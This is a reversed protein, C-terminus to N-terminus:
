YGALAAARGSIEAQASALSARLESLLATSNPSGVACTAQLMRIATDGACVASQLRELVVRAPPASSRSSRVSPVSLSAASPTGSHGKILRYRYGFCVPSPASCEKRGDDGGEAAGKAREEEQRQGGWTGDCDGEPHEVLLLALKFVRCWLLALAPWPSPYITALSVVLSRAVALAQPWYEVVAGAGGAGGVAPEGGAGEGLQILADLQLKALELRLL